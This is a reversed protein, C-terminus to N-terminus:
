CLSAAEEEQLLSACCGRDFGGGCRRCLAGGTACTTTDGCTTTGGFSTEGGCAPGCTTAGGDHIEPGTVTGGGGFADSVKLTM